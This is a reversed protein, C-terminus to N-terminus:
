FRDVIGHFVVIDGDRLLQLVPSADQLKRHEVRRFEAAGATRRYIRFRNIFDSAVRAGARKEALKLLDGPVTQPSLASLPLVLDFTRGSEPPPENLMADRWETQCIVRIEASEAPAEGHSSPMALLCAVIVHAVRMPRFLCLILSEGLASERHEPEIARPNMSFAPM